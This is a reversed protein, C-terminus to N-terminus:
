KTNLTKWGMPLPQSPLVGAAIKQGLSWRMHLMSEAHRIGEPGGGCKCVLKPAELDELVIRVPILDNDIGEAYARQRSLLCGQCYLRDGVMVPCFHGEPWGRCQYSM